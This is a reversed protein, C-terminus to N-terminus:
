HTSIKLNNQIQGPSAGEYIDIMDCFKFFSLNNLNIENAFKVIKSAENSFSLPMDSQASVITLAVQLVINSQVFCLSVIDSCNSICLWVTMQPLSVHPAWGRSM